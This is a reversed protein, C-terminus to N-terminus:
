SHEELWKQMSNMRQYNTLDIQLPTISVYNNYVAHFDTGESDDKVKGSDGLWYIRRGRGDETPMLPESFHREGQRTIKMGKIEEIPVNPVNVNLVVGNEMPSHMFKKVLDCAIKASTEYYMKGHHGVCSIAISPLGLFRGEIAGGVTGSYIVDDGLNAGANIGSVVMDPEEQMFGSLALKVCDAPTGNLQYWGTPTEQVRLPIELTIASSVGSRNQDPAIVTVKCFGALAKALAMIGPAFVGDDNTVLIHM